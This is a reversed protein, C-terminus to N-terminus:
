FSSQPNLFLKFSKTKVRLIKKFQEKQFSTTNNLILLRLWKWSYKEQIPIFVNKKIKIFFTKILETKSNKVHFYKELIEISQENSDSLVIKKDIKMSDLVKYTNNVYQPTIMYLSICSKGSWYANFERLIERNYEPSNPVISLIELARDFADLLIAYPKNTKILLSSDNFLCIKNDKGVHPYFRNRKELFIYPFELPFYNNFSIRLEILSGEIFVEGLYENEKEQIPKFDVKRDHNLKEIYKATM